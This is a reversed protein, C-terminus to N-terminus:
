PSTDKRGRVRPGRPGAFGEYSRTILHSEIQQATDLAVGVCILLSTGGYYFPVNLQGQLYMPMVCIGAIYFAGAFTLRSLIFDLYEATRKGPRIGPISANQKKLNDALDVPNFQLSTYFYAFFIVLGVYAVSYLWSGYSMSAALKQAWPHGTWTGVQSPIMIISSAFIPPIVGASNIKLPLYNQADGFLQKGVVRKAYLVPIRRQGREMIVVFAICLLVVALLMSITFIGFNEPDDVMKQYLQVLADPLDSVIGAFIIMSTGNGIGRESIQEGLWMLFATGATLALMTMFEFGLGPDLVLAKGPTNQNELWSALFYGQVLALLITGYRSYQNIKRRGTEGEKNMQELRPIVATMLQMIISASIYPTIGLAFISLKELAGGSFLNFYGLLGGAGSQVMDRMVTRDVGPVAVFIGLRFVALMGLTFLVRRRLEPLRFINLIVQIM